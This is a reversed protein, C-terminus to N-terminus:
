PLPASTVAFPRLGDTAVRLTRGPAAASQIEVSQPGIIPEPGLVLVPTGVVQTGETLWQEPLSGKSAGEFRFGSEAARWRVPQGTARSQARASEFLAALRQGERELQTANGDRMAVAVGASGIAIIAVVVMLEILTFGRSRQRARPLLAPGKAACGALASGHL